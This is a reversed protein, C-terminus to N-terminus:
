LFRDYLNQISNVYKKVNYEQKIKDQAKVSLRLTFENNELIKIVCDAISKSDKPPVLFGDIGNEIIEGPGGPATAVVPKGLAMAEIIVRGFPEPETSAHVIVDCAVMASSVDRRHGVFHVCDGIGLSKAYSELESKYKHNGDPTDGVIVAHITGSKLVKSCAELFVKHGKWGVLCGVIGVLRIHAPICIDRRFAAGDAEARFSHGDVANPIVTIQKEDVGLQLIKNKEYESIAIVHDAQKTLWSILRSGYALGRVHMIVPVGAKKAAMLGGDNLLPWNNLHVLKIDNQRIYRAIKMSYIQGYSYRDILYAAPGAQSFFVPEMIKQLTKGEGNLRKRSMCSVSRVPGSPVIYDQPYNTILDFSFRDADINEVLYKLSMLAGGFGPGEELALIRNIAACM